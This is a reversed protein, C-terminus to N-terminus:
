GTIDAILFCHTRIMVVDMRFLLLFFWVKVFVTQDLRGAQYQIQLDPESTAEEFDM